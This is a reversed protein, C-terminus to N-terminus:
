AAKHLNCSQYLKAPSLELGHPWSLAGFDVFFRQFFLEDNLPKLLPGSRKLLSKGDFIGTMGDSFSLEVQYDGLYKAQTIKIM